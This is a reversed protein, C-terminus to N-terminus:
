KRLGEPVTYTFVPEWGEPEFQLEWPYDVVNEPTLMTLKPVWQFPFDVGPEEGHLVRIAMQVALRGTFQQWEQPAGIINGEKLGIYVPQAMYTSVIHTKGTRGIAEVPLIAADAFVTNGIIYDVEPYASLFPEILSLQVAKESLGWKVDLVNIQEKLELEEVRAQFGLWTSTSWALGGPGPFFGATVAEGADLREKAHEIVIDASREGNYYYMCCSKGAPSDMSNDNILLIVPIGGAVAEELVPNLAEYSVVSALIADVKMEVLSEVQSIQRTIEGYGGATFATVDVGCLRAEDIVGYLVSIWYPDMLHPFSYGLDYTRKATVREPWSTDVGPYDLSLAPRDDLDPRLTAPDYTGYWAAIDPYVYEKLAWKAMPDEVVEPPPTVPPPTVPPAEPAAPICGILLAAALVAVTM